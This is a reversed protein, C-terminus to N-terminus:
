DIVLFSTGCRCNIVMEPSGAPDGPFQLAEGGVIFPQDM